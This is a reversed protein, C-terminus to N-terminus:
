NTRPKTNELVRQYWAIHDATLSEGLKWTIIAHELTERLAQIDYKNNEFIDSLSKSVLKIDQSM